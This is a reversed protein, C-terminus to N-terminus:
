QTYFYLRYFKFILFIINNLFGLPIDLASEINLNKTAM